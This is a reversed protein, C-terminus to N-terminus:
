NSAPEFGDGYVHSDQPIPKPRHWDPTLLQGAIKDPDDNSLPVGLDALTVPRIKTVDHESSDAGWIIVDGSIAPERLSAIKHWREGDQFEYWYWHTIDPDDPPPPTIRLRCGPVNVVDSVWPNTTDPWTTIEVTFPGSALDGAMDPSSWPLGHKLAGPIQAPTLM